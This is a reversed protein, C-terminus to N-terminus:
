VASLKVATFKVSAVRGDVLALDEKGPPPTFEAGPCCAM